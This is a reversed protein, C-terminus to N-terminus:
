RIVDGNVSSAHVKHKSEINLVTVDGNRSSLKMDDCVVGDVSIDASETAVTVRKVNCATISVDGDKTVAEVALCGQPVRIVMEADHFSKESTRVVLCGDVFEAAFSVCGEADRLDETELSLECKQGEAQVFKVDLASTKVRIDNSEAASFSKAQLVRRSCKHESEKQVMREVFARVSDIFAKM